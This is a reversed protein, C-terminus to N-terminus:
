ALAGLLDPHETLGTLWTLQEPERALLALLRGGLEGKLEVLAAGFRGADAPRTLVPSVSTPLLRLGGKGTFVLTPAGVALDRPLQLARLYPEGLLVVALDAPESLWARAAAPLGLADAWARVEPRSMGTFTADYPALPLDEPVLGYGASVVSLEVADAGHAERLARVGRLLRTHHRGTYLTGADCSPLAAARASVHANGRRFDALTLHDPHTLAKDATCSTLVRVHM